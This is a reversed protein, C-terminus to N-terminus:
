IGSVMQSIFILSKFFYFKDIKRRRIKQSFNFRSLLFCLLWSDIITKLILHKQHLFSPVFFRQIIEMYIYIAKTYFCCGFSSFRQPAINKVNRTKFLKCFKLSSIPHLLFFCFLLICILGM